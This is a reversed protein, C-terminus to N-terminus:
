QTTMNGLTHKYAETHAQTSIHSQTHKYSRHGRGTTYSPPCPFLSLDNAENMDDSVRDDAIDDCDYNDDGDIGIMVIMKM